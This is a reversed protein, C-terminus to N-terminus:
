ISPHISLYIQDSGIIDSSFLKFHSGEGERDREIIFGILGCHPTILHLCINKHIRTAGLHSLVLSSFIKRNDSNDNADNNKNDSGTTVRM